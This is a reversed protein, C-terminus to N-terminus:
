GEGHELRGALAFVAREEWPRGVLQLGVPLGEASGFPVSIAPIGALNAPVTFVDSLYMAVPDDLREGLRFAPSPSTPLLLADCTSLVALTEARIAARAAQAKLYFADQYGASLAFTGLLIRRRVEPGFLERHRTYLEALTDAAPRPGYRVGDYRALNSSAEAPALVYYCPIGHTWSPLDVDTVRLGEREFVRIARILSEAVGAHLADTQVFAPVGIRLGSVPLSCAAVLDEVPRLSTTPDGPDHGSMVSLFAAADRLSRGLPAVHDLSSAFAVLGRRSVRGWTAKAGVVGCLAAPQRVSGGTDSGLAALVHGSAVAAASGGSSGGPVRTPDSPHLTPGWASFETSSGMAFEDMNTRGVLLAGAEILREVASATYPAHYGELARSACGCPQGAVCLNDKVAFPVGALPLREGRALRREVHLARARAADPDLHLWAHLPDDGISALTQELLDEVRLRGDLV